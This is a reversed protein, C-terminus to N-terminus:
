KFIWFNATSIFGFSHHKLVSNMTRKETYISAAVIMNQICQSDVCRRVFISHAHVFFLILVYSCHDNKHKCHSKCVISLLLSVFFWFFACLYVRCFRFLWRRANWKWRKNKKKVLIVHMTLLMPAIACQRETHPQNGWCHEVCRFIVIIYIELNCIFKLQVTWDFRM